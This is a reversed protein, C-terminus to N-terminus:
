LMHYGSNKVYSLTKTLRLILTLGSVLLYYSLLYHSCMKNDVAMIIDVVNIELFILSSRSFLDGNSHPNTEFFEAHNDEEDRNKKIGIITMIKTTSIANNNGIGIVINVDCM